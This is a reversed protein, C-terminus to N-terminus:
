KSVIIYNPVFTLVIIAFSIEIVSVQWQGSPFYDSMLQPQSVTPKRNVIAVNFLKKGFSGLLSFIYISVGIGFTWRV